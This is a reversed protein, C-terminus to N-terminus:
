VNLTVGGHRLLLNQKATVKQVENDSLVAPLLTKVFHSNLTETYTEALKGM